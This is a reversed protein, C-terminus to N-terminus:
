RGKNHRLGRAVAPVPSRNLPRPRQRFGGLRAPRPRRRKALSVVAHLLDHRSVIGVVAGARMVPVRKIHRSAMLWVIDGLTAEEAVTAVERSMVQVVQGAHGQYDAQGGGMESSFAPYSTPAHMDDLKQEVIRLNWSNGPM